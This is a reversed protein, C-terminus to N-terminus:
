RSSVRRTPPSSAGQRKRTSTAGSWRSGAAVLVPRSVAGSLRRVSASPPSSRSTTSFCHISARSSARVIARLRELCVEIWEHHLGNILEDAVIPLQAAARGPAGHMALYWLFAFLRKQGFSLRVHSVESGDTRQFLSDFGQFTTTIREGEQSRELLRPRVEGSTFGLLSPIKSLSGLNEFPVVLSSQATLGAAASSLEEPLWPGYSGHGSNGEDVLGFYTTVIADFTALAEDLRGAGLFPTRMLGARALSAKAAISNHGVLKELLTWIALFTAHPETLGTKVELDEAPEGTPTWTGRSGSLDLKWSDVGSVRLVMTLKDDFDREGRMREPLSSTKAPIRVAHFELQDEGRELWWTLDFGADEKAYPSLDDHTVAAILDLLTSKGTANKGLLVNFTPGFRLDTGPKVNRFRDIRLRTLRVM